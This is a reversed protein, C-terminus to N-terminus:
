EVESEALTVQFIGGPQTFVLDGQRTRILSSVGNLRGPLPLPETGYAGISGAMTTVGGGTSIRLIRNSADAVFLTGDPDAWLGAASVKESTRLLSVTGDPKIRRIRRSGPESVYLNDAADVALGAPFAFRANVGIGDLGGPQGAAGAFTSVVGAPTVKRITHNGFDAIYLNGQSDRIVSMPQRFRAEAGSGDVSGPQGPSGAVTSVMGDAAVRRLTHGDFDTLYLNNQGDLVLSYNNMRGFRASAGPGDLYGREGAAGALTSVTGDPRIRRVTFGISDATYLSGQADAALGYPYKFRAAGLRGDTPGFERPQGLFTSVAGQHVKRVLGSGSEFVLIAGDPQVLVGVPNYLEAVTDPGDKSGFVDPLGALTSVAGSVPDYRRLTSSNQDAFVVRGQADLAMGCPGNLRAEAGSGDHHGSTGNGALTRVTGSGLELCRLANNAYDAFYLRNLAPDLAMGAASAGIQAEAGTGDVLGRGTPHGAVTTVMGVPTVKRIAGSQIVYCDGTPATATGGPNSFLVEGGQGDVPNGVTNYQGAVFSVTGDPAVRRVRQSGETLILSGSPELSISRPRYFRATDGSGDSPGSIFARGALTSVQGAMSIKRVTHSDQDPVYINGAADRVPFGPNAIRAQALPGDVHGPGGGSGVFPEVGRAVITGALDHSGVPNAARLAFTQRRSPQFTWQSRGLVDAGDLLLQTAPGGGLTWQLTVQQGYDVVKGPDARLSGIVPPQTQYSLAVTATQAAGAANTVTLTYTTDAAPNVAISQGSTVAGVAPTIAGSGGQFVANLRAGLGPWAYASDATFATISPRAVVIASATATRSPDALSVAKITFAGPTEPATYVGATTITGGSPELVSWTVATSPTGGVTATFTKSEGTSLTASGQVIAVPQTPPAPAPSSGGGGSCAVLLLM